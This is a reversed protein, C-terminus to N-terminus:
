AVNAVDTCCGHSCTWDSLVSGSLLPLFSHSLRLAHNVTYSTLVWAYALNTATHAHPARAPPVAAAATSALGSSQVSVFTVDDGKLGM